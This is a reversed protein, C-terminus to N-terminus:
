SLELGPLGLKCSFSGFSIQLCVAGLRCGPLLLNLIGKCTSKQPLTQGRVELRLFCSYCIHAWWYGIWPQLILQARSCTDM